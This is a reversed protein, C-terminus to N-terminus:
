PTAPSAIPSRGEINSTAITTGRIRGNSGRNRGAILSVGAAHCHKKVNSVM